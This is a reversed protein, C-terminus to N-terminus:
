HTAAAPPAQEVRKKMAKVVTLASAVNVGVTVTQQDDELGQALRSFNRSATSYYLLSGDKVPVVKWDCFSGKIDGKQWQGHMQMKEPELDYRFTYSTNTMPTDIEFDVDVRTPSVEHATSKVVKPFFIKHDGFRIATAWVEEPPRLIHIVATAHDFKGKADVNVQVVPGHELMEMLDQARAPGGALGLLAGCIALQRM